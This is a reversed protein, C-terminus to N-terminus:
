EYQAFTNNFWNKEMNGIFLRSDWTFLHIEGPICCLYCGVSDLSNPLYCIFLFWVHVCLSLLLFLLSVLCSFIGFPFHFFPFISFYILSILCNKEVFLKNIEEKQQKEGNEKWGKILHYFPLYFFICYLVVGFLMQYFISFLLIHPRQRRYEYWFQLPITGIGTAAQSLMNTTSILYQCDSKWRPIYFILHDFQSECLHTQLYGFFAKDSYFNFFCRLCSVFTSIIYFHCHWWREDVPQGISAMKVNLCM